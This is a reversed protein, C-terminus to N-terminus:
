PVGEMITWNSDCGRTPTGVPIRLKTKRTAKSHFISTSYSSPHKSHNQFPGVLHAIMRGVKGPVSAITFTSAIGRLRPWKQSRGFIAIKPTELRKGSSLEFNNLSVSDLNEVPFGTGDVTRNEQQQVTVWRKGCTGADSASGPM